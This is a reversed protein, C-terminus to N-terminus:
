ELHGRYHSFWIKIGNSQVEDPFDAFNNEFIQWAIRGCFKAYDQAMLMCMNCICM